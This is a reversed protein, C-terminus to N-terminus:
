CKKIPLRATGSNTGYKVDIFLCFFVYLIKFIIEKYDCHKLVNNKRKFKGILILQIVNIQLMMTKHLLLRGKKESGCWKLRYLFKELKRAGSFLSEMDGFIVPLINYKM